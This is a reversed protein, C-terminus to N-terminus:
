PPLIRNQSGASAMGPAATVSYIYCITILGFVSPQPLWSLPLCAAHVHKSGWQTSSLLNCTSSCQTVLTSKRLCPSPVPTTHLEVPMLVQPWRPALGM